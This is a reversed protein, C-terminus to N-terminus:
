SWSTSASPVASFVPGVRAQGLVRELELGILVTEPELVVDDLHELQGVDLAVLLLPSPQQREEDCAAAVRPGLDGALEGVEDAQHGLALVAPDPALLAADHEDMGARRDQRARRSPSCPPCPRPRAVRARRTRSRCARLEADLQHGLRADDPRRRVLDLERVPLPDRRPRDDAGDAGLRRRQEVRELERAVLASTHTGVLMGARRPAVLVKPRAAVARATGCGFPPVQGGTPM